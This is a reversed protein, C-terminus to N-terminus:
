VQQRLTADDSGLEDADNDQSGTDDDDAAAVDDDDDSDDTMADVEQQLSDLDSRSLHALANISESFNRQPLSVGSTGPKSSSLDTGSSTASTNSTTPPVCAVDDDAKARKLPTSDNDSDNGDNSKDSFKRKSSSEPM